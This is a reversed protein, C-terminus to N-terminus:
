RGPEEHERTTELQQAQGPSNPRHLAPLYNTITDAVDQASDLLRLLEFASMNVRVVPTLILGSSGQGQAFRAIDAAPLLFFDVSAETGAHAMSDFNVWESHDKEAKFSEPHLKDRADDSPWAKCYTTLRKHFERSNGWFARLFDEPPYRIELRTRLTDKTNRSLKAFLISVRGVSHEVWAVDADYVGGPTPLKSLDIRISKDLGITIPDTSVPSRTDTRATRGLPVRAFHQHKNSMRLGSTVGLDDAM